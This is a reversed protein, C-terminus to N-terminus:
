SWWMKGAVRVYQNYLSCLSVLVPRKLSLLKANIRKHLNESMLAMVSEMIFIYLKASM